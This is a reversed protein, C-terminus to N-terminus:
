WHQIVSIWLALVYRMNCRRYSSVDPPPPQHPLILHWTTKICAMFDHPHTYNCSWENTAKDSSSASHSAEGEQRKVEPSFAWPIRQIHFQAYILTQASSKFYRPRVL